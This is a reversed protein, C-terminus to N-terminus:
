TPGENDNFQLFDTIEKKIEEKIVNENLLANNLKQVYTSKRDNKDNNFVLRLRHHDSLLCPVIEMKKYRNLGTKHSVIHDTRSFIGQPASFFTYETTKSQFMRYVDTLNMPNMDETLKETDRNLKQKWSRDM